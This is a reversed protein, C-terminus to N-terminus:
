LTMRSSAALFQAEEDTEACIAWAGVAVRPEALDDSASFRDRYLAAIEAGQRNIFDAFAYPLGLEAAWVASQPSSGLLWPEPLEASQPLRAYRALRHGAPLGDRVYALLESLQEPFDDPAAQRRDRQLVWATMPD